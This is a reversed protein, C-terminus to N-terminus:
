PSLSSCAASVSAPYPRDPRRDPPDPGGCAAAESRVRTALGLDELSLLMGAAVDPERLRALLDGLLM